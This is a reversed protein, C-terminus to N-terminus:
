GLALVRLHQSRPPREDDHSKVVIGCSGNGARVESKNHATEHGKHPKSRLISRFEEGIELSIADM